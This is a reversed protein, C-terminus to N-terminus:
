GEGEGHEDLARDRLDQLVGVLARTAIEGMEVLEEIEASADEDKPKALIRYALESAKIWEPQLRAHVQRVPPSQKAQKEMTWSVSDAFDAMDWEGEAGDHAKQLKDYIGPLDPNFEKAKKFEGLAKAFRGQELHADGKAEHKRAKDPNPKKSM